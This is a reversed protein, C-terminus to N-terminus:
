KTEYLEKEVLECWRNEVNYIHPLERWAKMKQLAHHVTSHNRQMYEGIKAESYGNVSAYYAFITRGIQYQTQRDPVIFEYGLVTVVAEHIEDLTKGISNFELSNMLMNILREKELRSLSLCRQELKTM